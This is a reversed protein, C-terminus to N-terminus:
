HVRVGRPRASQDIDQWKKRLRELAASPSIDLLLLLTQAYFGSLWERSETEHPTFSRTVADLLISAIFQRDHSEGVNEVYDDFKQRYTQM